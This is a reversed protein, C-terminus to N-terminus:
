GALSALFSDLVENFREPQEQNPLHAAGPIIELRAGSILDAIQRAKEQPTIPDNEGVVVLAPGAYRALIDKSDQRLAM